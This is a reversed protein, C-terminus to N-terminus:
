TPIFLRASDSGIFFATGDERLVVSRAGTTNDLAAYLKLDKTYISIEGATLVAVYRGAAALDLVQEELELSAIEDGQDDVTVLSTSSGARYKGLLLSAFGDGDLAYDKLYRGTYDYQGLLGGDAGVTVLGSEGLAWFAGGSFTTDLIVNNGLPCVAFPPDGEVADISYLSLASQFVSSEQGITLVAVTKGDDSLLGDMVFQTSIKLGMIPAGDASYVTVVGKYGTDRSTVALQGSSSLHASLFEQGPDTDLALIEERNRYLRLATGGSDYVVASGGGRDAMPRHLTLPEDIYAVGGTSYIGVGSTSWVLLDDGVRDFGGRSGAHYQFSETQGSDSRALSRYTFYRKLADLNLSDRFVVLAVAGVLLVLTLLFALLRLILNPKKEPKPAPAIYEEM